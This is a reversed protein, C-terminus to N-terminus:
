EGMGYNGDMYKVMEMAKEGITAEKFILLLDVSVKFIGWPVLAGRRALSYM